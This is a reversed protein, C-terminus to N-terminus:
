GNFQVEKIDILQDIKCLKLVKLVSQSSVELCFGLAKEQCTKFLGILLKIGMSDIVDTRSLDLVVSKAKSLEVSQMLAKQLDHANAVTFNVESSLRLTEGNETSNIM